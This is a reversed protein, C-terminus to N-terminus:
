STTVRLPEAGLLKSLPAAANGARALNFLGASGIEIYFQLGDRPVMSQLTSPQDGARRDPEAVTQASQVGASYGKSQPVASINQTLTFCIVTALFHSKVKM